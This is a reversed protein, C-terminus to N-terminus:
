EGCGRRAGWVTSLTVPCRCLTNGGRMGGRPEQCLSGGSDLRCPPTLLHM